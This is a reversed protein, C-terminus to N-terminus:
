VISSLEFIRKPFIMPNRVQLLTWGYENVDYPSAKGDSFLRELGNVTPLLRADLRTWGEYGEPGEPCLQKILSFAPSDHAVVYTCRLQPSISLGGAGIAIIMSTKITFAFFTACSQLRFDAMTSTPSDRYLPCIPQHGSTQTELYFRWMCRTSLPLAYYSTAESPQLNCRMQCNCSQRSHSETHQSGVWFSDFACGSISRDKKLDREECFSQSFSSKKNLDTQTCETANDKQILLTDNEQFKSRVWAKTDTDQMVREDKARLLIDQKHRKVQRLTDGSGELGVAASDEPNIYQREALKFPSTLARLEHLIDRTNAVLEGTDKQLSPMTKKIAYLPLVLEALMSRSEQVNTNTAMSINTLYALKREFKTSLHSCSHKLM